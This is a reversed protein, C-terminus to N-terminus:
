LLVRKSPVPTAFTKLLAAPHSVESELGVPREGCVEGDLDGGPSYWVGGLSTSRRAPAASSTPVRAPVSGASSPHASSLSGRQLRSHEGWVRPLPVETPRHVRGKRKPPPFGWSVEVWRWREPLRNRKWFPQKAPNPDRGLFLPAEQHSSYVSFPTSAALGPSALSLLFVGPQSFM